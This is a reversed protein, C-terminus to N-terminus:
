LAMCQCGTMCFRAAFQTSHLDQLVWAHSLLLKHHSPIVCCCGIDPLFPGLPRNAIIAAYLLSRGGAEGVYAVLAKDELCMVNQHGM